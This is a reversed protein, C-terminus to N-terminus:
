RSRSACSQDCFPGKRGERIRKLEIRRLRSFIKSCNACKVDLVKAPSIAKRINDELSLLQLNDISDNKSRGDIHDVTEALGNLRRKLHREMLYRPYSLSIKMKEKAYYLVVKKRSNPLKYPGFISSLSDGYLYKDLKDIEMFIEGNNLISVSPNSGLVM